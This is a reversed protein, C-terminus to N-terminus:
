STGQGWQTTKEESISAIQNTMTVTDGYRLPVFSGAANVALTAPCGALQLQLFM